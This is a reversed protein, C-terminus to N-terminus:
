QMCKEMLKKATQVYSDTNLNALSGDNNKLSGPGKNYARYAAFIIDDGRYGLNEATKTNQIFFNIGWTLNIEPNLLEVLSYCKKSDLPDKKGPYNNSCKETPPFITVQTLGIGHSYNWDLCLTNPDNCVGKETDKDDNKIKKQATNTADIKLIRTFTQRKYTIGSKLFNIRATIEKHVDEDHGIAAPNSGSEKQLLVKIICDNKLGAKRSLRIALEEVQNKPMITKSTLTLYNNDNIYSMSEPIYLTELSSFGTLYPNITYLITYSGVSLIMGIIAGGIRKKAAGIKDPSGGSTLWQIGAVMIMVVALISIAVISYRYVATLYQQFITSQLYTGGDKEIIKVGDTINLGPIRIQLTPQSVMNKLEDDTLIRSQNTSTTNNTTTKTNYIESIKQFILDQGKQNMHLGDTGRYESKQSLGDTDVVVSYIDVFYDVGNPKQALWANNEKLYNGWDPTWTGGTYGKFPQAGVVIVTIGAKEASDFIKKLETQTNTVGGALGNLDGYIILENFGQNVGNIVVKQEYTTRFWTANTSKQVFCEFTRNSFAKRLKPVFGNQACGDAFTSSGIVAVKTTGAWVNNPLAIFIVFLCITFIIKKM